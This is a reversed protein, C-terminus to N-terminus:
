TKVKYVIVLGILALIIWFMWRLVQVVPSARARDGQAQRLTEVYVTDTKVMERSDQVRVGAAEHGRYRDTVVSERMTDGRENTRVHVTTMEVVTDHVVVM